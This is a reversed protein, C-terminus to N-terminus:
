VHADEKQANPEASVSQEAYAAALERNEPLGMVVELAATHDIKHERAYVQAKGMLVRGADEGSDPQKRSQRAGGDKGPLKDSALKALELVLSAPVLLEQGARFERKQGELNVEIRAYLAPTLEGAAVLKNLEDSIAKHRTTFDLIAAERDKSEQQLRFTKLEDDKSKLSAELTQAKQAFEQRVGAVAEDIRAKVDKEDMTSAGANSIRQMAGQDTLASFRHFTVGELAHEVYHELGQLGSVAPLEAGLLALGTFVPGIRQGNLRVDAFIEASVQDYRHQKIADHVIQPLDTLDALVREGDPSLRLNTVWGLAPQGEKFPGSHGLKIPKRLGALEPRKDNAVAEALDAKVWADSNGHSDIWNGTRFIEVGIMNM